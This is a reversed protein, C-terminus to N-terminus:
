MKIFSIKNLGLYVQMVELVSNENYNVIFVKSSMKSFAIGYPENLGDKKKLM